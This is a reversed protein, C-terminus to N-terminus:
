WVYFAKGYPEGKYWTNTYWVQNYEKENTTYFSDEIHRTNAHIYYMTKNAGCYGEDLSVVMIPDGKTTSFYQNGRDVVENMVRLKPCIRNLTSKNASYYAYPLVQGEIGEYKYGLPFSKSNVRYLHKAGWARHFPKVNPYIYAKLLQEYSATTTIPRPTTTTTSKTTGPTTHKEELIEDFSPDTKTIRPTTTTPKPTTTTTTPKPTTTTTTTPKPTTTTTTTAIPTTTTTTTTTSTSTTTPPKTPSATAPNLVGDFDYECVFGHRSPKPGKGGNIVIDSVRNGNGKVVYMKGDELVEFDILEKKIRDNVTALAHGVYETVPEDMGLEVLLPNYFKELHALCHKEFGYARNDMVTGELPGYELVLYCKSGIMHGSSCFVEHRWDFDPRRGYECIVGFKSNQSEYWNFFTLETDNKTFYTRERDLVQEALMPLVIRTDVAAVSSGFSSMPNKKNKLKQQCLQELTAADPNATDQKLHPLSQIYYMTKTAGCYGEEPSVVMMPKVKTLSSHQNAGNYVENM